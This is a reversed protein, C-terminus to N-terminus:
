LINDAARRDHTLPHLRGGRVRGAAAFLFFFPCALRGAATPRSIPLM